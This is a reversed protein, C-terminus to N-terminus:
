FLCNVIIDVIYYDCTYSRCFDTMTFDKSNNNIKSKQASEGRLKKEYRALQEKQGEVTKALESRSDRQMRM